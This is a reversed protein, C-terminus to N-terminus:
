KAGLNRRFSNMRLKCPGGVGMGWNVYLPDIPAVRFRQRGSRRGDARIVPQAGLLTPPVSRPAGDTVGNGIM